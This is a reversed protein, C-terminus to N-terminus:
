KHLRDSPFLPRRLGDSWVVVYWGDGCRPFDVPLLALVLDFGM